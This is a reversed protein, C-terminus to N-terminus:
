AVTVVNHDTIALFSYGNQVHWDIVQQPTLEGDSATSHCHISGKYWTGAAAYPNALTRANLVRVPQTWARGGPGRVEVRVYGECGRVTYAASSSSSVRKVVLGGAKRFIIEGPQPLTVAITRSTGSAVVEISDILAGTTAYFHGGALSSLIPSLDPSTSKAMIWARGFDGAQHADDVAFGWVLAKGALIMSANVADWRVTANALVQSTEAVEASYIEIGVYGKLSLLRPATLTSVMPHAAIALGGQAGIDDIRGQLPQTQDVHAGVNLAVMHVIEGTCEESRILTITSQASAAPSLVPSIALAIFLLVALAACTRQKNPKRM